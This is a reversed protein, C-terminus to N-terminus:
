DRERGLALGKFVARRTKPHLGRVVGLARLAEHNEFREGFTQRGWEQHPPPLWYNFALRVDEVEVCEGPAEVLRERAFAYILDTTERWAQTAEAM